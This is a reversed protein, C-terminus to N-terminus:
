KPFQGCKGCRFVGEHNWHVEKAPDFEKGCGAVSCTAIFPAQQDPVPKKKKAPAKKKKAKEAKEAALAERGRKAEREDSIAVEAEASARREADEKEAALEADIDKVAQDTEQDVRDLSEDTTPMTRAEAEKKRTPEDIQEEEDAVYRAPLKEGDVDVAAVSARLLLPDPGPPTADSVIAEGDRIFAAQPHDQLVEATTLGMLVDQWCDDFHFGAARHMLMRTPYEKWPGSKNWLNATKADAVSFTHERPEHDGNRWTRCYGYCWDGCRTNADKPCDQAHQVDEEIKTGPKLLGSGMVLARAAKSIWAPAGNVVYVSRIAMMPSLGAEAGTLIAVAVKDQTNLSKPAMGSKHIGTALRWLDEITKLVMGGQKMEITAPLTDPVAPTLGKEESM